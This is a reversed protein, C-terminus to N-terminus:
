AQYHEYAAKAVEAIEFDIATQFRASAEANSGEPARTRTLVAIAITGAAGMEILGVDNRVQHAFALSGTKNAIPIAPSLFRPLRDRLQQEYLVRLMAARASAGVGIADMGEGTHIMAMLRTMEDATTSNTGDGGAYEDPEPPPKLERQHYEWLVASPPLGRMWPELLERCTQSVVTERLGLTRMTATIRAPGLRRVLMDAATNDSIIIMLTLLDRVTPMLGPQLRVLVGSGYSKEAETLEWRDEFSVQHAAAQRFLEVMVPVKFVSAMPMVRGGDISVHERRELHRISVSATALGGNIITRIARDLARTM